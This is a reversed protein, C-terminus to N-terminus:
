GKIMAGEYSKQLFDYFEQLTGFGIRQGTHPDELSLTPPAEDKGPTWIRLMYVHYQNMWKKM